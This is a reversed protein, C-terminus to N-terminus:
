SGLIQKKKLTFEEETIIGQKKLEFLKELDDLDRGCSGSPLTQQASVNPTPAASVHLATNEAKIISLLSCLEKASDVAYKYEISNHSTDETILPIVFRSQEATNVFVEMHLDNCIDTISGLSMGGDLQTSLALKNGDEYIHFDILASFDLVYQLKQSPFILAWKRTDRDIALTYEYGVDSFANTTKGLLKELVNDSYAGNQNIATQYAHSLEKIQTQRKQILFGTSVIPIGFMLFLLLVWIGEGLSLSSESLLSVIFLEVFLIVLLVLWPTNGKMANEKVTKQIRAETIPNTPM